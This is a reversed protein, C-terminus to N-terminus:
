RDYKAKTQRLVKRFFILFISSKKSTKSRTFHDFNIPQSIHMFTKEIRHSYMPNGTDFLM